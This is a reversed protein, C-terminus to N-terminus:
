LTLFRIKLWFIDIKLLFKLITQQLTLFDIQFFQKLISMEPNKSFDKTYYFEVNFSGYITEEIKGRIM